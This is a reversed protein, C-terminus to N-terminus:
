DFRRHLFRIDPQEESRSHSLTDSSLSGSLCNLAGGNGHSVRCGQAQSRAVSTEPSGNSLLNDCFQHRARFFTDSMLGLSFLLFIPFTPLIGSGPSLAPTFDYQGVVPGEWPCLAGMPFHPLPAGKTFVQGGKWEVTKM